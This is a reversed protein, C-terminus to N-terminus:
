HLWEPRARRNALDIGLKLAIHRRVNHVTRPSLRLEAAIGEITEGRVLRRGIEFERKTLRGGSGDPKAVFGRVVAAVAPSFVTEGRAVRPVAALLESLPEGKEILGNAGARLMVEVTLADVTATYLLIPLRSRLARVREVVDAGAANTLLPDAIILGADVERRLVGEVEDIRRCHGAVNWGMNRHLAACLLESLAADPMLVVIDLAAEEFTSFDPAPASVHVLSSM